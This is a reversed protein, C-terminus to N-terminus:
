RILAVKRTLVKQNLSVVIIYIGSEALDGDNTRGNWLFAQRGGIQRSLLTGDYVLDLSANYIQVTGEQPEEGSVPISLSSSGNARFPNPFPTGEELSAQPGNNVVDGVIYWQAWHILDPVDLKVYLGTGTPQYSEDTQTDSILLTYPHVAGGALAADLNTNALAITLTDGGSLVTYYRAALSPLSGGLQRSPPTFEITTQAMLPFSHGEPYYDVPNSRHGTFYNWLTWEAFGEVFSSGNEQLTNDMAPLPPGERIYEWTRRMADIHHRKQVYQGWIGRSYMIVRDGSAFATEPYRFHSWPAYLYQLYDNVETYAVDEFWTSSIEYFYTDNVYWYGYRSLQSAHFLEHAVTIRLGPMGKNPSPRVFAFDNDLTIFTGVTDGNPSGYDPVTSGYALGLEMIYIDYEPGGGLGGDSPPELYGLNITLLPHVYQLISLVSDVFEHSSGPIRAYSGIDLM